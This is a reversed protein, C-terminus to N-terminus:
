GLPSQTAPSDDPQLLVKPWGNSFRGAYSNNGQVAPVASYCIESSWCKFELHSAMSLTTSAPLIWQRPPYSTWFTRSGTSLNGFSFTRYHQVFFSLNYPFRRFIIPFFQFGSFYISLLCFLLTSLIIVLNHFTM